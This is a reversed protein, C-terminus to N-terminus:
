SEGEICDTGDFCNGDGEACTIKKGGAQYSSSQFGVTANGWPNGPFTQISGYYHGSIYVCDIKRPEFKTGLHNYWHHNTDWDQGNFRGEFDSLAEVNALALASVEPTDKLISEKITYGSIAVVFTAGLSFLIRKKM